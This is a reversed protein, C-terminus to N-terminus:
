GDWWGAMWGDSIELRQWLPNSCYKGANVPHFTMLQDFSVCVGQVWWCRLSEKTSPLQLVKALVRLVHSLCLILCLLKKSQPLLVLATSSDNNGPTYFCSGNLTYSYLRWPLMKREVIMKDQHPDKFVRSHWEFLEPEVHLLFCFPSITLCVCLFFFTFFFHLYVLILTYLM